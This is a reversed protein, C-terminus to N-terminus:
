VVLVPAAQALANLDYFSGDAFQLREVATDANRFQAYISIEDGADGYRIKLTEGQRELHLSDFTIGETFRITDTSVGGYPGDEQLSDLGDGKSFVYVDDGWSGVLCDNGRGGILTDDGRGSGLWDSGDGGEMLDAQQGGYFEDNGGMGVMHNAFDDLGVWYDRSETGVMSLRRAMDSQSWSTGDSFRIEELRYRPARFYDTVTVSDSESMRVILHNERREFSVDEPAIGSGLALVDKGTEVWGDAELYLRDHGDGPRFFILDGGIGGSYTDNGRGGYFASTEGPSGRLGEGRDSGRLIGTSTGWETMAQQFALGGHDSHQLVATALEELGGNRLRGLTEVLDFLADTKSASRDFRNSLRSVLPAVDWELTGNVLSWQLGTLLGPLDTQDVLQGAIAAKLRGYTDNVVVNVESAPSALEGRNFMPVQLGMFTELTALQRGTMVSSNELEPVPGADAWQQVLDELLTERELGSAQQWAQLTAMLQGSTDRAMAQHLTRANGLGLIDPLGAITESVPLDPSGDQTRYSEVAFWVDTMAHRQGDSTLFYSSERHQNGAADRTAPTDYQLNLREIGAQALTMLEGDDSLGNSNLDRWVQLRHYAADQRDVSRDRNTDYEALADFGETAHQGVSRMTFNGFLEAGSTIRGDGDLDVVLLGDDPSVWGVAEKLGACDLNFFVGDKVSLTEVGDGDLDLILPDIARPLQLRDWEKIMEELPRGWENSQPDYTYKLVRAIQEDIVAAEDKSLSMYKKLDEINSMPLLSGEHRGPNLGAVELAKWVYDVCSNTAPNYNDPGFGNKEALSSNPLGFERLLDFQAQNIPIQRSAFASDGEYRSRDQDTVGGPAYGSSFRDPGNTLEYWMHGAVSSGTPVGPEDTATFTPAGPKEIYIILQYGFLNTTM